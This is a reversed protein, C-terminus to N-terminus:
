YRSCVFLLTDLSERTLTTIAIRTRLALAMTVPAITTARGM